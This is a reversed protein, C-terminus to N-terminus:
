LRVRGAAVAAVAEAGTRMLTRDAGAVAEAGAHVRHAMITSGPLRAKSPAPTLLELEIDHHRLDEVTTRLEAAGRGLRKAM